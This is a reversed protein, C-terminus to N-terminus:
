KHFKTTCNTNEEIRFIQYTSSRIEFQRVVFRSSNKLTGEVELYRSDVTDINSKMHFLGFRVWYKRRCYTKDFDSYESSTSSMVNNLWRVVLKGYKLCSEDRLLKTGNMSYRDVIRNM